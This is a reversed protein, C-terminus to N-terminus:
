IIINIAATYWNVPEAVKAPATEETREMATSDLPKESGNQYVFSVAAM